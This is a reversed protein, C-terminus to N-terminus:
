LLTHYTCIFAASTCHVTRGTQENQIDQSSVTAFELKNQQRSVKKHNFNDQQIIHKSPISQPRSKVDYQWANVDQLPNLM